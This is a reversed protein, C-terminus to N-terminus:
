IHELLNVATFVDARTKGRFLNKLSASGTHINRPSIFKLFHISARGQYVVEAQPGLLHNATADENSWMRGPPNIYIYISCPTLWGRTGARSSETVWLSTPEAGELFILGTALRPLFIEGTLAQHTVPSKPYTVDEDMKRM